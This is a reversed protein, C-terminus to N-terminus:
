CAPRYSSLSLNLRKRKTDTGPATFGWSKGEAIARGKENKSPRVTDGAAEPAALTFSRRKTGTL